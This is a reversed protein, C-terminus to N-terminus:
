YNNYQKSLLRHRIIDAIGNLFLVVMIIVVAVPFAKKVGGEQLILYLHVTLVRGPTDLGSIPSLSTGLTFLLVIAESFARGVALIIGTIIGGSASPVIVKLLSTFKTAGLSLSAQYLDKPVSKIAEESNRVINPLIMLSTSLCGSVIGLGFIPVFAIMGFLGFIIAPLGSLIDFTLHVLISFRSKRRSYYTLYIASCIGLPVSIILCGLIMFLTNIIIFSIGGYKGGDFPPTTFYKWSLSFERKEEKWSVIQIQNKLAWRCDVIGLSGKKSKLYNQINKEYKSINKLLLSNEPRKKEIFLLKLIQSSYPDLLISGELHNLESWNKIEQRALKYILSESLILEESNQTVKSSELSSGLSYPKFFVKRIKNSSNLNVIEEKTLTDKSFIAIAGKQTELLNLIESFSETSKFKKQFHSNKKLPSLYNLWDKEQSDKRILLLPLISFNQESISGWNRLPRTFLSQIESFSLSHIDVKSNIWIQYSKNNWEISESLINLSKLNHEKVTFLGNILIYSLIFILIFLTFIVSLGLFFFALLQKTKNLTKITLFRM